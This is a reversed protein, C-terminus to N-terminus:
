SVALRGDGSVAVGHVSFSHGKLTRILSTGPPHLTPGLPRLWPNNCVRTQDLLGKIQADTESALRGCLQGPLQLADRVLVHASLRLAGQILQLSRSNSDLIQSHESTTDQSNSEVIRLRPVGISRGPLTDERG